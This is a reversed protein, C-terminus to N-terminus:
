LATPFLLRKRSIEATKFRCFLPLNNIKFPKIKKPHNKPLSKINIKGLRGPATSITSEHEPIHACPYALVARLSTATLAFPDPHSSAFLAAPHRGKEKDAFHYLRPLRSVPDAPFAKAKGSV